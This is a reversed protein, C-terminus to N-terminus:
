LAVAIQKGSRLWELALIACATDSPNSRISGSEILSLKTTLYKEAADKREECWLVIPIYLVLMTEFVGSRDVREIFNVLYESNKANQAFPLLDIEVYEETRARIGAFDNPNILWYGDSLLLNRREARAITDRFAVTFTWPPRLAAPKPTGKATVAELLERMLAEAPLHEIAIIPAIRGLSRMFNLAVYVKLRDVPLWYVGPRKRSFGKAKMFPVLSRDFEIFHTQKAILSPARDM